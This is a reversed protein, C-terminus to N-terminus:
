WPVWENSDALANDAGMPNFVDYDQVATSPINRYDVPDRLSVALYRFADNPHSTWDHIPRNRFTQTKADFETRYQRLAEIGRGCNSEDFWCKPLIVRVANIGDEVSIKPVVRVQTLGLSRLVELRSRGTSLEKVQVDHPLYHEGYTYGKDRLVSVYHNLGVGSAEYYDILHIEKGVFQAFWIATMDDIGLDWATLVPLTPEYPVSMIHGDKTLKEMIKGYYAGRMAAEWSCEYEQAYEEEAMDNAAFALEGADVYGTDSAKYMYGAWQGTEDENARTFLDFFGNKGKPTGIFSATGARDSLAPRIIESWMKPSM